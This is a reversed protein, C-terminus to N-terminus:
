EQQKIEARAEDDMPELQMAELTTLLFDLLYAQAQDIAKNFEKRGYQNFIFGLIAFIVIGFEGAVVSWLMVILTGILFFLYWIDAWLKSRLGIYGTIKTGTSFPRLNGFFHVTVNNKRHRITGIEFASKKDIARLTAYLGRNPDFAGNLREYCEDVSLSTIFRLTM